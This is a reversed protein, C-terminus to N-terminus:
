KEVTGYSLCALPWLKGYYFNDGRYFIVYMCMEVNEYTMRSHLCDGWWEHALPRSPPVLTFPLLKDKRNVIKRRSPVSHAKFPSSIHVFKDRFGSLRCFFKSLSIFCKCMWKHYQSSHTPRKTCLTFKYFTFIKRLLKCSKNNNFHIIPSFLSLLTRWDRKWRRVDRESPFANKIVFLSFMKM